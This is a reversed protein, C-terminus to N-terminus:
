GMVEPIATAIKKREELYELNKAAVPYYSPSLEMAKTFFLKATSFDGREMAVFGINNLIRPADGRKLDAVAEEYRGQWALALRLNMRAADLAPDLALAERFSSEAEEYRMAMILSMGRNNYVPAARTNAVLARDYSALARETNGEVAYNRGIANWARWLDPDREVAQRLLPQGLDDRGMMLLTIGRGQLAKARLPEAAMVSEFGALADVLRHLGLQAEAQGLRAQYNDPETALAHGFKALAAEFQRTNLLADGRAVALGAPEGLGQGAGPPPGPDEDIFQSGGTACGGLAFLAVVAIVTSVRRSASGTM